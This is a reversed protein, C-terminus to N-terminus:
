WYAAASVRRHARTRRRTVDLRGQDDPATHLGAYVRIPEKAPRGNLRGLEGAHLGTAVFTAARTDWLAGRRWHHTPQRVKGTATTAVRGRPHRQGAASIARQRRRLVWSCPCRRDVHDAAGCRDGHRHVAGGRRAPALASDADAGAAQRCRHAGSVHVGAGRRGRRRRHPHASLGRHTPGEIGMLASVQRQWSAAPILMLVCATPAIAVLAAKTWSLVRAPPPWWRANRLVVRYTIKGFLVGLGYGFAANVGGILGQFLWDRPLLSPTLSLCFFVAGFAVGVFNLRLLSWMWVLLPHRNGTGVSM